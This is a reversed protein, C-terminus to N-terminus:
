LSATFNEGFLNWNGCFNIGTDLTNFLPGNADSSKITIKAQTTTQNLSFYYTDTSNTLVTWDINDQTNVINTSHGYNFDNKKQIGITTIKNDSDLGALWVYNFCCTQGADIIGEFYFDSATEVTTIFPVIVNLLNTSNISAETFDIIVHNIQEPRNYNTGIDM